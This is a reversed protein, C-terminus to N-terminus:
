KDFHGARYRYLITGIGLLLGAGSLPLIWLSPPDAALWYMVAILPFIIAAGFIQIKLKRSM